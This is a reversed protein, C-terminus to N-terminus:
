REDIRGSQETDATFAGFLDRFMGPVLAALQNVSIQPQGM